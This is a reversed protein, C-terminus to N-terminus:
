KAELASFLIEMDTGYTYLGYAFNRKVFLGINRKYKSVFLTM